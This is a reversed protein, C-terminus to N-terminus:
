CALSRSRLWGWAQTLNKRSQKKNGEEGPSRGVGAQGEKSQVGMLSSQDMLPQPERHAGGPAVKAEAM